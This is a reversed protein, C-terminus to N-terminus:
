CDLVDLQSAKYLRPASWIFFATEMTERNNHRNKLLEEMEMQAIKAVPVNASLRQKANDLQKPQQLRGNSTEEREVTRSQQWRTFMDAAKKKKHINNM